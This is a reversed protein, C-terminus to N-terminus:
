TKSIKYYREVNTTVSGWNSNKVRIQHKDFSKQDIFEEYVNFRNLNDTDQVVEFKLCGKEERTLKEHIPLELKVLVLDVDPIIIYGRLIVKSM